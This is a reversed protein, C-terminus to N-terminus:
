PAILRRYFEGFGRVDFEFVQRGHRLLVLEVLLRNAEQLRYLFSDVAELPHPNFFCTNGPNAHDVGIPMGFSEDGDLRITAPLNDNVSFVKKPFSVFVHRFVRSKTVRVECVLQPRLGCKEDAGSVTASRVVSDDMADVTESFQWAVDGCAESAEDQQQEVPVAVPYPIFFPKQCGPCAKERGM